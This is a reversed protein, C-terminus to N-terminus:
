KTSAGSLVATQIEVIKGSDKTRGPGANPGPDGFRESETEWNSKPLGM